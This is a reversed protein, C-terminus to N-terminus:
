MKKHILRRGAALQRSYPLRWQTPKFPQRLWQYLFIKMGPLDLSSVVSRYGVPWIPRRQRLARVSHLPRKLRLLLAASMRAWASWTLASLIRDRWRASWRMLSLLLGPHTMGRSALRTSKKAKVAPAYVPKHPSPVRRRSTAPLPDFKGRGEVVHLLPPHALPAQNMALENLLENDAVSVHPASASSHRLEKGIPGSAVPPPVTVGLASFTEKEEDPGSNTDCYQLPAATENSSDLVPGAVVFPASISATSAGHEKQCLLPEAMVSPHGLPSALASQLADLYSRLAETPDLTPGEPEIDDFQFERAVDAVIHAPVPRVNDAYATILAHECLLNAVRPIGRSYFHVADMAQSAFIPKCNAGAIRLRAQIYDHTEELTLAATKCRLTIRQKIQRLEPMELRDELEPQGSLVIQLLKERPTELNLLLRIEELVHTPLGQAEDVILVPTSGERYREILWHNLPQLPNGKLQPDFPVGFDSLIFDFLHNTDLHSNFIFATPTQQQHLSDLLRNLLTTKGTGVEGTLLILGKRAQIGYTMETLAAQTQSTLFLYRPDPNVNFPNERLGFFQKYM